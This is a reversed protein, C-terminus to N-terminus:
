NDVTKKGKVKKLNLVLAADRIAADAMYGSPKLGVKAAAKAILDYEDNSLAVPVNNERKGTPSEPRNKARM